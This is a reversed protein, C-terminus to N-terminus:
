WLIENRDFSHFSGSDVNSLAEAVSIIGKVSESVPVPAHPGGLDTKVWGPHISAVLIGDNKLDISLNKSFMNLAVKSMRYGYLKGATNQEFSALTTSINLVAARSVSMDDVSVLSSAERLLPMCTKVLMTPGVVNTEFLQMLTEASVMDINQFKDIVGANNIVCNLGNRGVIASINRVADNVLKEKTVDLELIVVNRHQKALIQLESAKAPSRCGAFLHETKDALHKILGLGIGRNSGTVLVSRAFM